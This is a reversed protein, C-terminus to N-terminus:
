KGRPAYSFKPAYSYSPPPKGRPASAPGSAPMKAGFGGMGSCHVSLDDPTEPELDANCCEKPFTSLMTLCNDMMCYECSPSEFYYGRSCFQEMLNIQADGCADVADDKAKYATFDISKWGFKVPKMTSSDSLPAPISGLDPDSPDADAWSGVCLPYNPYTSHVYSFSFLMGFQFWMDVVSPLVYADVTAFWDAASTSFTEFEKFLTNAIDYFNMCYPSGDPNHLCFYGKDGGFTATSLENISYANGELFDSTDIGLINGDSFEKWKEMFLIQGCPFPNLMSMYSTYHGSCKQPWTASSIQFKTCLYDVVATPNSGDMGIDDATVDDKATATSVACGNHADNAVCSTDYKDMVAVAWDVSHAYQGKWMAISPIPDFKHYFRISEKIAEDCAGSASGAFEKYQAWASPLMSLEDMDYGMGELLESDIGDLRRAKRRRVMDTVSTVGDFSCWDEMVYSPEGPPVVCKIKTAHISGGEEPGTGVYWTPAAGFTVLKTNSDDGWAAKSQAYLTAAAGGLSHGTIFTPPVATWITMDDMCPLLGSMYDYYGEPIIVPTSGVITLVPSQRFNYQLMSVDTTKTGQFAVIYEASYEEGYDKKLLSAWSNPYTLKLKKTGATDLNLELPEPMEGRAGRTESTPIYKSAIDCIEYLMTFLPGTPIMDDAYWEPLM